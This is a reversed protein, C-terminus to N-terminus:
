VKEDAKVGTWIGKEIIEYINALIEDDAYDRDSNSPIRYFIQIMGLIASATFYCNVDKFCGGSVGMELVDVLPKRSTELMEEMRIPSEPGMGLFSQVMIRMKYRSLSFHRVYGKIVARLLDFSGEYGQMEEDICRMLSEPISKIIEHHLNEKSNFYYFLLAKNVGAQKAIDKMSTGHYGSLAFLETAANFIKERVGLEKDEKETTEEM